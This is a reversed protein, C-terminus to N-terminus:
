FSDHLQGVRQSRTTSLIQTQPSGGPDPSTENTASREAMERKHRSEPPFPKCALDQLSTKIIVHCARYAITSM